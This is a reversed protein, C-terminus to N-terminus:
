ERPESSSDTKVWKLIMAVQQLVLEALSLWRTATKDDVATRAAPLVTLEIDNMWHGIVVMHDSRRLGDDGAALLANYERRAAQAAASIRDHRDHDFPM